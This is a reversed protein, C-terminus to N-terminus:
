NFLKIFAQFVHMWETQLGQKHLKKLRKLPKTQIM